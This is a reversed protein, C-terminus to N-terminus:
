RPIRLLMADVEDVRMSALVAAPVPVPAAARFRFLVFLDDDYRQVLRFARSPPRPARSPHPTRPKETAGLARRAAGIVVVERARVVSGEVREAGLYYDLTERSPEGPTAVIALPGRPEGIM